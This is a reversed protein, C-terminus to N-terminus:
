KLKHHKFQLLESLSQYYIWDFEFINCLKYWTKPSRLFTILLSFIVFDLSVPFSSQLEFEECYIWSSSLMWFSCSGWIFCFSQFYEPSILLVELLNKWYLSVLHYQNVLDIESLFRILPFITIGWITKFLYFSELGILM